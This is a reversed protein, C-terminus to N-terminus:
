RQRPVSWRGARQPARKPLMGLLADLFDNYSAIVGPTGAAYDIYSGLGMRHSYPTRAWQQGSPIKVPLKQMPQNAVQGPSFAPLWYPTPPTEYSSFDYPM